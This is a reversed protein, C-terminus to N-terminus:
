GTMILYAGIVFATTDAALAILSFANPLFVLASVIVLAGVIFRHYFSTAKGENSALFGNDALKDGRLDESCM